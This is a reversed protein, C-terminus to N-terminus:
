YLKIEKAEFYVKINMDVNEGCKLSDVVVDYWTPVIFKLKYIGTDLYTVYIGKSNIEPVLTDNNVLMKVYSKAPQKTPGIFTVTLKTTQRIIGKPSMVSSLKYTSKKQQANICLSFLALLFILLSRM